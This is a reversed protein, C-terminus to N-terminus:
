LNEAVKPSFTLATRKYRTLFLIDANRDSGSACALSAGDSAQADQEPGIKQSVKTPNDIRGARRRAYGKEVLAEIPASGCGTEETVRRLEVPGDHAQLYEHVRKQKPSLHQLEKPLFADPVLELMPTMRTGAQKKVGAPVVANLVQGWGCLYYDAMWRTLKLLHDTLLSDDDLVQVIAKVTREPKTETLGVCFGITGKDGRGFPALVRKGIAVRTRLSDPIAYTYPHDLPRDFVIEAFGSAIIPAPQDTEFLDAQTDLV